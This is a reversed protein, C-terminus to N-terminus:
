QMANQIATVVMAEAEALSAAHVTAGAARRHGGGGFTACVASVDFDINARMSVRFVGAETPQRMAVAIEVGSVSRVVDVVTSLHEDKLDNQRKDDMSIASIGIRGNEYLHLREVALKEACLVARSKVEFLKHSIDSVDIGMRVLEAARLHTEPTVNSHRFGGTDSSIAAYLFAACAQPMGRGSAAVLDFVIEGCAAADPLILHDAYPTGKEHHDIMLSVRDGYKEYLAGMQAPSATDVSIFRANEFEKPLSETLVSQQIGETLFRLREPIEEACLCYCRSGMSELFAALGFASGIADADPNVHFLICTHAPVSLLELTQEVTLARYANAM